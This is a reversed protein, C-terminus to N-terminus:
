FNDFLYFGRKRVFENNGSSYVSSTKSPTKKLVTAPSCSAALDGAWLTPHIDVQQGIIRLLEKGKCQSLLHFEPTTYSSIQWDSLKILARWSPLATVPERGWPLKRNKFVPRAFQYISALGETDITIGSANSHKTLIQHMLWLFPQLESYKVM